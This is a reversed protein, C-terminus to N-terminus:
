QLQISFNTQTGNEIADRDAILKKIFVKFEGGRKEEKLVIYKCIEISSLDGLKNSSPINLLEIAKDKREIKNHYEDNMPSVGRARDKADAFSDYMHDFEEHFLIHQVWEINEKLLKEKSEKRNYKLIEQPTLGIRAENYKRIEEKKTRTM